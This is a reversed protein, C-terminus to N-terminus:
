APSEVVTIFAACYESVFTAPCVVVNSVLTLATAVSELEEVNTNLSDASETGAVAAVIVYRIQDSRSPAPPVTASPMGAPSEKLAKTVHVIAPAGADIENDLVAVEANAFSVTVTVAVGFSADPLV